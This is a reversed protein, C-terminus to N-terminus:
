HIPKLLRLVTAIWKASSDIQLSNINEQHNIRDTTENETHNAEANALLLIILCVILGAIMLIKRM